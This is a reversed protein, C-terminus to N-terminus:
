CTDACMFSSFESYHVAISVVAPATRRGRAAMYEIEIIKAVDVGNLCVEDLLCDL